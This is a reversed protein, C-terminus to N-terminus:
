KMTKRVAKNESKKWWSWPIFKTIYIDFFLLIFLLLWLNGAWISFLITALTWVGFWIWQYPQANSIRTGLTSKDSSTNKDDSVKNM